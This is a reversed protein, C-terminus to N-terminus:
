FTDVKEIKGFVNNGSSEEGPTNFLSNSTKENKRDEEEQKIQNFINTLLGVEYPVLTM